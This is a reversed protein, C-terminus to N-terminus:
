YCCNQCKGKQRIASLNQELLNLIQWASLLSLLLDSRSTEIDRKPIILFEVFHAIGSARWIPGFIWSHVVYFKHFVTNLFNPQRGCIRSPGNKFVKDWMAKYCFYLFSTIWSLSFSSVFLTRCLEKLLMSCSTRYFIICCKSFAKFLRKALGSWFWKIDSVAVDFVTAVDFISPYM